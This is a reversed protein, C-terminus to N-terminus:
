HRPPKSRFLQSLFDPVDTSQREDDRIRQRSAHCPACYVIMGKRVSADRLTAMHKGCANCELTTPM